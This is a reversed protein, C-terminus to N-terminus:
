TLKIGDVYKREKNIKLKNIISKNLDINAVKAASCAFIVIDALEQSLGEFDKSYYAQMAEKHEDGIRSLEYELDNLKFGKLKKNTFAAMGVNRLKM